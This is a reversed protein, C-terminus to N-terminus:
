DTSAQLSFRLLAYVLLGLCTFASVSLSLGGYGNQSLGTAKGRLKSGTRAPMADSPLVEQKAVGEEDPEARPRLRPRAWAEHASSPAADAAATAAQSAANAAAAAARAQPCSSADEVRTAAPREAEAAAVSKLGMSASCSAAM